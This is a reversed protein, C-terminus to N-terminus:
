HNDSILIRAFVANNLFEKLVAALLGIARGILLEFVDLQMRVLDFDYHLSSAVVLFQKGDSWNEELLGVSDNVHVVRRVLLAEGGNLFQYVLNPILRCVLFAYQNGICLSLIFSAACDRM